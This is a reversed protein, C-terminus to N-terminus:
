AHGLKQRRRTQAFNTMYHLHHILAGEQM